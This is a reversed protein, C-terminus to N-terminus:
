PKRIMSRAKKTKLKIDLKVFKLHTKKYFSVMKPVYISESIRLDIKRINMKSPFQEKKWLKLEINEIGIFDFASAREICHLRKQRFFCINCFIM